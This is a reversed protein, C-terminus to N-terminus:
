NSDDDLRKLIWESDLKEFHYDVHIGNDNGGVFLVIRNGYDEFANWNFRVLPFRDLGHYKSIFVWDNQNILFTTDKFDEEDTDVWTNLNLPFNTHKIQFSSDAFYKSLFFSLGNDSDITLPNSKIEKLNWESNDRLFYFDQMLSDRSFWSIICEDGFDSDYSFNNVQGKLLYFTYELDIFQRNHKWETKDILTDNSKLPFDIRSLQFASDSSFKWIFDIIQEKPKNKIQVLGTTDKQFEIDVKSNDSRENGSKCSCILLSIVLIYKLLKKM